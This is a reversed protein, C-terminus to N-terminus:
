GEGNEAWGKEERRSQRKRPRPAAHAELRASLDALLDDYTVCEIRKSDVIVSRRRWDLRRREGPEFYRNRGVILTVAADITRAGFRAEFEDTKEVDRLKGFWDIIQSFGHDFRSSWDRTAKKGQRKFLSGPGADEFEVFNYAQNASDVCV